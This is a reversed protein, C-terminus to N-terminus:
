GSWIIGDAHKIGPHPLRQSLLNYYKLKVQKKIKAAHSVLGTAKNTPM